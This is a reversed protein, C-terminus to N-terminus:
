IAVLSNEESYLVNADWSPDTHESIYKLDSHKCGANLVVYFDDEALKTVICDDKIGGSPLTILSLSAQGPALIQTDVVSVRELLTKADKGKIRVQGM